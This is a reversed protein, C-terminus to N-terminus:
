KGGLTGFAQKNGPVPSRRLGCALSATIRGRRVWPDYQSGVRTQPHPPLRIAPSHDRPLHSEVGLERECSVQSITDAERLAVTTAGAVARGAPPPPM